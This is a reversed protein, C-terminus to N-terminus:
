NGKLWLAGSFEANPGGQQKGIGRNTKREKRKEKKRGKEEIEENSKGRKEEVQGQNREM